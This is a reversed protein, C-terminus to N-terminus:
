SFIAKGETILHARQSWKNWTQECIQYVNAESWIISNTNNILSTVDSTNLILIVTCHSVFTWTKQFTKSNQSIWLMTCWFVLIRLLVTTLVNYRVGFSSM